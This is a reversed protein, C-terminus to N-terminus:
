CTCMICVVRLVQVAGDCLAAEDQNRHKPRRPFKFFWLSSSELQAVSSFETSPSPSVSDLVLTDLPVGSKLVGVHRSRSVSSGENGPDCLGIVLEVQCAQPVAILWGLAGSRVCVRLDGASFDNWMRFLILSQGSFDEIGKRIALSDKAACLDDLTVLDSDSGSGSGSSDSGSDSVSLLGLRRAQGANLQNHRM